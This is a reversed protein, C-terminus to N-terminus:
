RAAKRLEAARSLLEAAKKAMEATEPQSAFTEQRKKTYAVGLDGAKQMLASIEPIQAGEDRLRHEAQSYAQTAAEKAAADQKSIADTLQSFTAQQEARQAALAPHNRLAENVAKSAQRSEEQLAKLEPNRSELDPILKGMQREIAYAERSLTRAEEKPDAHCVSLGSVFLLFIFLRTKMFRLHPNSVSPYEKKSM